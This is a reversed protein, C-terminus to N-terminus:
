VGKKHDTRGWIQVRDKIPLIAQEWELFVYEYVSIQYELLDLTESMEKMRALLQERLVVLIDKRTAITQDGELQNIDTALQVGDRMSVMINKEIPINAM